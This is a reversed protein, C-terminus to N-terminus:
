LVCYSHTVHHRDHARRPTKHYNSVGTKAKKKKPIRVSEESDSLSFIRASAIKKIQSAARKREDKVEITSLLEWWYEYTLSRYDEPHDDVEDQMSKPLGDKIAIRFEDATFEQNHVTWNAAEASEGKMSPPPLYKALDHMERVLEAYRLIKVKLPKLIDNHVYKM